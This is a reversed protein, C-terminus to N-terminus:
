DWGAASPYSWGPRFRIMSVMLVLVNMPMRARRATRDPTNSIDNPSLPPPQYRVGVAVGVSVAVGVIVDVWVGVRVGLEVAVPVAVAVDVAVGVGLGVGVSVELGLAVEDGVSDPLVDV